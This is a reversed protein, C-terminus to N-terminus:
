DWSEEAPASTTTQFTSAWDDGSTGRDQFKNFTVKRTDRGGFPGGRPGYNSGLSGQASEELFTPVYGLGLEGRRRVDSLIKILSRALPADREADFFSTALGKNGIRGTRGIRHVYENIDTPLDFNVVHSVNPIDLGRAAVATACLVPCRGSKFDGLAEERERQYRDGHISTTPFGTQSLFVALFDCNRKTDVFVLVRDGSAHLIEVLQDRKEFQGVAIVRQDIDSSTGGVRGVTLFIYNHLFDQALKQIEEPFTASFMVTRREEKSPMGMQEVLARVEPEFGMDLMRDAEDLILYKIKSFSIKGRQRFDKLRGPTAVLLTCGRELTRMQHGTSTGGYIVVPKVMTGYSFKRAEMFIQIALERTPAICLAQPSQVPDLSSGQVGEHLINSIIPLLFAATKGSGTQACAMLDRENMICPIAYKQVPTPKVYNAKTVNLMVAENLQADAFSNVHRPVNSGTAEVPIKDYKEFNIGRAITQFIDSEEESPAPPVYIPPRTSGDPAVSYMSSHFVLGRADRSRQCTSTSENNNPCDRAMHGAENCKYCNGVRLFFKVRTGRRANWRPVGITERCERAIENLTGKNGKEGSSENNPCERSFHGTEGCKYCEGGGSKKGGVYVDKNGKPPGRDNWEGDGSESNPCERSFHGEEGCKYCGGGSKKGGVCHPTQTRRGKLPGRDNDEGDGSGSNPCDRSFHGEEGCKYCGSGGGGGGGGLSVFTGLVHGHVLAMKSEIRVERAAAKGGTPRRPAAATRKTGNARKTRRNTGDTARFAFFRRADSRTERSGHRTTDTRQTSVTFGTSQDEEWSSM